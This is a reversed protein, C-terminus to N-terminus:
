QMVEPRGPVWLRTEPRGALRDRSQKCMSALQLAENRTLGEGEEDAITLEFLIMPGPLNGIAFEEVPVDLPTEQHRGVHVLRFGDEREVLSDLEKVYLELDILEEAM